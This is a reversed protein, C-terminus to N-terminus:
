NGINSILKEINEIQENIEKEQKAISKKRVYFWNFAIWGLTTSYSIIGFVLDRVAFEYMYLLIGVTLLIFYLSIGTTQIFRQNTRFTMLQHLYSNNDLTPDSQKLLLKVLRTNFIIGIVISVLAIIIGAKTTWLKFDYHCGIFSIFLFTFVLTLAGLINKRIMKKRLKEVQLLIEKVSPLNKDSTQQWINKIDDFNQMNM